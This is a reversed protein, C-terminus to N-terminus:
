SARTRPPPSSLEPIFSAHSLLPTAAYDRAPLIGPLEPICPLVLSVALHCLVCHTCAGSQTADRTGGGDHCPMSATSTSATDAAPEASPGASLEATSVTDAIAAVAVGATSGPLASLPMVAAMAGSWPLWALMWALVLKRFSNMYM